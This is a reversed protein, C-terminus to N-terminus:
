FQFYLFSSYTSVMMGAVCMLLLAAFWIVSLYVPVKSRPRLMSNGLYAPLRTAGLIGLVILM